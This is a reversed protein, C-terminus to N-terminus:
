NMLQWKNKCFMEFWQPKRELIEICKKASDGNRCAAPLTIGASSLECVTLAIAFKAKDAENLDSSLEECSSLLDLTADRFCSPKFRLNQLALAIPAFLEVQSSETPVSQTSPLQKYVYQLHSAKRAYIPLAFHLLKSLKM